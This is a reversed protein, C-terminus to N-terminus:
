KKIGKKYQEVTLGNEIAERIGSGPQYGQNIATEFARKGGQKFSDSTVFTDTRDSTKRFSKGSRHSRFNASVETESDSVESKISPQSRSKEIPTSANIPNPTSPTSSPTSKPNKKVSQRVVRGEEGQAFSFRLKSSGSIPPIPAAFLGPNDFNEPPPPPTKSKPTNHSKLIDSILKSKKKKPINITSDPYNSETVAITSIDDRLNETKIERKLLNSAEIVEANLDKEARVPVSAKCENEMTDGHDNIKATDTNHFLRYLRAFRM